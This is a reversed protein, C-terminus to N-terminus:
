SVKELFELSCYDNIFAISIHNLRSFNMEINDDYNKFYEEKTINEYYYKDLKKNDSNSLDYGYFIDKINKQIEEDNINIRYVDKVKLLEEIRKGLKKYPPFKFFYVYSAGFKGRFITLADLIEERTLSNKDRNKYKKINWSDVIRKKYKEANKDFLDYLKHNYMYQLSILGKSLDADKNVVHYFYLPENLKMLKQTEMYHYFENCSIHYKPKQYEYVFTFAERNVDHSNIFKGKVDLLLEKLSEYKHVGRYKAWSHEFWFIFGDSEYTLFTHSPLNDGGYTCIFYTKVFIKESEFLMRELEVQDFCVGYRKELLEEPTLLYIKEGWHIPDSNLINNGDDDLFGYEITDM